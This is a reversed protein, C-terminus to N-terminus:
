GKERGPVEQVGASQYYYASYAEQREVQNLVVGLLHREQFQRAGKQAVNFATKGSRVVMLVGDSHEALLCADSLPVCPPSDFIIWDFLPALRHLLSRLRGNGLLEIPDSAPKGGPIFFLNEPSGRQLVGSIELDGRLFDSLGPVPFTGLLVHLRSLRLDGDLLLVRRGPQQAFSRALNAAVFTKGEGPLSSTVLITQLPLKERMQILRTRLTRFEEAGTPRQERGGFLLARSDTRWPATSGALISEITVAEDAPLSRLSSSNGTLPGDDPPREPPSSRRPLLDEAVTATQRAAEHEEAAKRLADHIRSM